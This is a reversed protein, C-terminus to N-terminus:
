FLDPSKPPLRESTRPYLITFHIPAAFGHDKRRLVPFILISYEFIRM